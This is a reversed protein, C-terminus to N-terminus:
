VGELKGAWEWEAVEWFAEQFILSGRQRQLSGGSDAFPVAFPPPCAQSGPLDPHLSVEEVELGTVKPM